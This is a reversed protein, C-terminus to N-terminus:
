AAGGEPAEPTGPASTAAVLLSYPVYYGNADQEMGRKSWHFRVVPTGPGSRLTDVLTGAAGLWRVTNADHAKHTDALAAVMDVGESLLGVLEAQRAGPAAAQQAAPAYREVIAKLEESTVLMMDPADPPSDRDPLEAVERVIDGIWDQNGTQEARGERWGDSYGEAYRDVQAPAEAKTALAARKLNRLKKMASQLVIYQPDEDDAISRCMEGIAAIGADLDAAQAGQSQAALAQRAYDQMMSYTYGMIRVNRTSWGLEVGQPLPPLEDAQAGSDAQQAAPATYVIRTAIGEANAADFTAKEADMWYEGFEGEMVQLIAQPAEEAHQAQAPAPILGLPLVDYGQDSYRRAAEASYVTCLPEVGSADLVKWAVPEGNGQHQRALQILALVTAPTAAQRWAEEAKTDASLRYHTVLHGAGHPDAERALAELRDLDIEAGEQATTKETM